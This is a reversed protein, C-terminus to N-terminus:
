DLSNQVTIFGTPFFHFLGETDDAKTAGIDVLKGLAIQGVEVKDRFIDGADFVVGETGFFALQHHCFQKTWTVFNNRLMINLELAIPHDLDVLALPTLIEQCKVVIMEFDDPQVWSDFDFM